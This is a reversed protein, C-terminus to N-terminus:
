KGMARIAYAISTETVRDKRDPNWNDALEACQERTQRIALLIANRMLQDTLSGHQLPILGAELAAREAIERAATVDDQM